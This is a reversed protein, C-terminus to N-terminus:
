WTGALNDHFCISETEKWQLHRVRVVNSITHKQRRVQHLTGTSWTRGQLYFIMIGQLYFIMIGQLYFLGGKL